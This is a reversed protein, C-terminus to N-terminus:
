GDTSDNMRDLNPNSNSPRRGLARRFIRSLASGRRPSALERLTSVSNERRPPRSSSATHHLMPLHGSRSRSNALRSIFEADDEHDFSRIARHRRASPIVGSQLDLPSPNESYLESFIGMDEENVASMPARFQEFANHHRHHLGSLGAFGTARTPTPAGGFLGGIRPDGLMTFGTGVGDGTGTVFAHIHIDIGSGTGTERQRLLRGLGQIGGTGDLGSPRNDGDDNVLSGLSAAALYAGLLSVGDDNTNSAMPSMRSVNRSRIEGRFTNVMGSAFDSNDPDSALMMRDEREVDDDLSPNMLLTSTEPLVVNTTEGDLLSFMGIGLSTSRSSATDENDTLEEMEVEGAIIVNCEDPARRRPESEEERPLTSAYSAIHPAADMLARGLRDLLPALQELDHRNYPHQEVEPNGLEDMSDFLISNAEEQRECTWPLCDENPARVTKEISHDKEGMAHLMMNNVSSMVRQLEPLLASRDKIENEDKIHTSPAASFSSQPSPSATM